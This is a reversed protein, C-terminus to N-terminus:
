PEDVVEQETFALMCISCVVLGAEATAKSMRIVRPEPECGCEWRTRPKAPKDDQEDGAVNSTQVRAYHHRIAAGLAKVEADYAELAEPTWAVFALGYTPHPELDTTLGLEEALALFRRNHYRGQRSTDKIGRVEALAHAAEHLLTQLVMAPGEALQEGSVFLEHLQGKEQGAECWRNAAFHGKKSGSSGEGTIFLVAPVEPHREQICAWAGELAAILQSGANM